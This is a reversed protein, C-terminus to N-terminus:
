CMASHCIRVCTRGCSSPDSLCAVLGGANGRGHWHRGGPEFRSHNSGPFLVDRDRQEGPHDMVQAHFGSRRQDSEELVAGHRSFWREEVRLARASGKSPRRTASFNGSRIAAVKEATKRSM